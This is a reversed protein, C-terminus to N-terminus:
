GHYGLLPSPTSTFNLEGSSPNISALFLKVWGCPINNVSEKSIILENRAEEWLKRQWYFYTYKHSINNRGM